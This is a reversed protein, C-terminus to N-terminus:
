VNSVRNAVLTLLISVNNRVLVALFVMSKLAAFYGYLGYFLTGGGGLSPKLKHLACGLNRYLPSCDIM